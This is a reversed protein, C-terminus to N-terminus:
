EPVTLIRQAGAWRLRTLCHDLDDADCHLIVVFEGDMIAKHVAHLQEEPIGSHRLAQGLQTVAAAGAMAGGSLAAGALAGGLADVIPGAALLAGVGPIVFMGSAGALLGWLAGWFAGHEGWVKMREGTSSFAIGLADDGSGGSKHLLSIQDAPFDKDILKEVIGTAKEEDEFIAVLLLSKHEPYM